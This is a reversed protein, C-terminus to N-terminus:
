VTTRARANQLLRRTVAILDSVDFPKPLCLVGTEEIFRRMEPDNVNSVALVVNKEMGPRNSRLWAYVEFGGLRGPMKGDVIIADFHEDRLRSIADEADACALVDAGASRLVEREFELVPEEDDLLLVRGHLPADRHVAPAAAVAPMPRALAPLRVLFVAGGQPHNCASINGGHEKLIGYCISLGLGTGKGVSKTTYFPDFIRKPDKIGPGSDRFEACVEDGESYIRVRFTGGRATELVADAANNIINLFVQELQHEDGMVDPLDPQFEREVVINNLKMDYDRLALSDELVRRLDVQQRQPKRQRSFSLLNQVIKHTRQAQKYLKQVFDQARQPIDENELLQAYGLIATLPNNLEHAVGSILQGVASMKESQLLQEQARTLEEYARRTEQYLHVKEITTALQRGIAMLLNQDATSFQRASRNAIGLVGEIKDQAWLVVWMWAQLGEAEVYSRLSPPLQPLDHETVLALQSERLTKWAEEPLPVEDFQPMGASHQGQSVRRRLVGKEADALLVSGTDAAFLEMAQELAVKLIDDLDFSQAATTAITNLAKLERNRRRIEDEARKQDTIDLLFGQYTLVAGSEDRRAFSTELVPITSGDRRRLMIEFSRLYGRQELDRLLGPRVSPDSYLQSPIDLKLVEDRSDYGLMRVFADNCDLLRGEPTSIFVGEQVQEFLLRYREAIARSETVDKIIHVTGVRRTEQENYSSTSVQSFGGFCPDPGTEYGSSRWCYPCGQWAQWSRGVGPLLSECTGKVIADRLGLRERLAMNAKVVRFSEDHVLVSDQISDFTSVWQKQSQLIQSFLRQNEIAIGLQNAIAAFFEMEDARYSRYRGVGLNVTGIMTKKGQLPIMLVHEYGEAQLQECTKPDMESTRVTAPSGTRLTRGSFSDIVPVSRRARGYEDSLGLSKILVLQDSDLVRFWAGRAPILGKLETLATEVIPMFDQAEAIATTVASLVRLRRLREYSDDLVIVVMSIGLLLELAIDFGAVLDSSGPEHMHLFLLSIVLLVSGIARRGRSFLALHIAGAARIAAYMGTLFIPLVRSHPFGLVYVLSLGSTFLALGGLPVLHARRDTYYFVSAAFLTIAIVYFEVSFAHAAPSGASEAAAFKHLLYALWGLIWTLLYRARFSRYVLVASGLLLLVASAQALFEQAQLTGGFQSIFFGPQDM